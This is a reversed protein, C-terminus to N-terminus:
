IKCRLSRVSTGNIFKLWLRTTTAQAQSPEADSHEKARLIYAFTWLCIFLGGSLIVAIYQFLEM